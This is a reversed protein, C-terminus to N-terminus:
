VWLLINHFSCRGAMPFGLPLKYGYYTHGNKFFDSQAWGRHYVDASVPYRDASAALIYTIFV